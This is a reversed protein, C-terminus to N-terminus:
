IFRSAKVDDNSNWSTKSNMPAIASTNTHREVKDKAERPKRINFEESDSSLDVWGFEHQTMSSTNVCHSDDGKEPEDLFDPEPINNANNESHSDHKQIDVELWDDELTDLVLDDNCSYEDVNQMEPYHFYGLGTRRLQQAYALAAKSDEKKSKINQAIKQKLVAGFKLLNEKVSLKGFQEVSRDEDRFDKNVSSAKSIRFDDTENETFTKSDEITLLDEGCALVNNNVSEEIKELRKVHQNDETYSHCKSYQSSSCSSNDVSQKESELLVSEMANSNSSGVSSAMVLSRSSSAVECSSKTIIAKIKPIINEPATNEASVEIKIKKIICYKLEVYEEGNPGRKLDKRDWDSLKLTPNVIDGNQSFLLVKIRKLKLKRREQRKVEETDDLITPEEQHDEEKDTQSQLNYWLMKTFGKVTLDKSLVLYNQSKIHWRQCGLCGRCDITGDLDSETAEDATEAYKQSINVCAHIVSCSPKTLKRQFNENEKEEDQDEYCTQFSLQDSGIYKCTSNKGFEGMDSGNNNEIINDIASETKSMKSCLLDERVNNNSKQTEKKSKQQTGTTVDATGQDQLLKKVNKSKVILRRVDSLTEEWKMVEKEDKRNIEYRSVIVQLRFGGGRQQQEQNLNMDM